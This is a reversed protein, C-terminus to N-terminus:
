DGYKEQIEQFQDITKEFADVVDPDFATGKGEMIIAYTKEFPFSQKYVRKSTLADYVDALAVIRAELPIDEGKLGSPYGNGDFKEHHGLAVNRSFMLFDPGQLIEGGISTHTKMIDFEEATLKGPKLLINDYIGVKGIDHLPSSQYLAEVFDDNIIGSYKATQGMEMALIKSYHKMRDLHKGTEPDRKEALEALKVMTTYQTDKSKNILSANELVSTAQLALSDLLERDEQVFGGPGLHNFVGILGM